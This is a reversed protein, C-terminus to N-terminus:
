RSRTLVATEKSLLSTVEQSPPDGQQMSAVSEFLKLRNRDLVCFLRKSDGTRFNSVLLFDALKM